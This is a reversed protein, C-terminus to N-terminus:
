NESPKAVREIVWAEVPATTDELQLGIEEFAKSLAPGGPRLTGPASRTDADRPWTINFTVDGSIGTRDLILRGALDSLDPALRAFPTNWVDLTGVSKGDRRGALQVRWTDKVEADDVNVLNGNGDYTKM